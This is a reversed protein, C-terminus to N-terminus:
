KKLNILIATMNDTGIRGGDHEVETYNPNFIDDILKIVPSAIESDKQESVWKNMKTILTQNDLCDWVGDSALVIYEDDSDRDFCKIDPNATVAQLEPSSTTNDKYKFDGISRSTALGGDVRNNKVKHGAKDIRNM